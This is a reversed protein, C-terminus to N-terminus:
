NSSKVIALKTIRYYALTSIGCPPDLPAGIVSDRRLSNPFKVVSLVSSVSTKLRLPRPPSFKTVFTSIQFQALTSISNTFDM